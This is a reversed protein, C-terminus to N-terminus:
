FTATSPCNLSPLSFVLSLFYKFIVLVQYICVSLITSHTHPVKLLWALTHQYPLLGHLMDLPLPKHLCVPLSVFFLVPFSISHVLCHPFPPFPDLCILVSPSIHPLANEPVMGTMSTLGPQPHHCSSGDFRATPSSTLQM